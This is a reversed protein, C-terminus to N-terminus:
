TNALLFVFSANTQILLYQFHLARRAHRTALNAALLLLNQASIVLIQLTKQSGM